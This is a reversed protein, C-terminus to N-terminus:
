RCRSLGPKVFGSWTFGLIRRMEAINGQRSADEAWNLLDILNQETAGSSFSVTLSRMMGFGMLQMSGPAKGDIQRLSVGPISEWKEGYAGVQMAVLIKDIMGTQNTQILSLIGTGVKRISALSVRGDTGAFANFAEPVTLRDNAERVVKEGVQKREAETRPLSLLEEVAVAGAASVAAFMAARGAEAGPTPKWKVKVLGRPLGTAYATEGGTVGPVPNMALKWGRASVEYSSAKYGDAEGNAPLGAAGMVEVLTAPLKKFSTEYIYVAIGIQKLNNACPARAAARVKQVAPLLLGILIATTSIVVILEIM